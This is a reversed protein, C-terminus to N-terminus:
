QLALMQLGCPSSRVGAEALPKRTRASDYTQQKYPTPSAGHVSFRELGRRTLRVVVDLCVM